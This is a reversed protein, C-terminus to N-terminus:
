EVYRYTQSAAGAFPLADGVGVIHGSAFADTVIEHSLFESGGKWVLCWVIRTPQHHKCLVAGAKLRELVRKAREARQQKHQNQRDLRRAAKALSAPTPIM